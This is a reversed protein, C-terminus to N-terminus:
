KRQRIASIIATSQISAPTATPNIKLVSEVYNSVTDARPKAACIHKGIHFKYAKDGKFANYKRANCPYKFSAAGCIKCSDDKAFHFCNPNKYQLFFNCEVNPCNIQGKCDRYRVTEYGTWSTRLDKKWSRGDRVKELLRIRNTNTLKFCCLGDIDHPLKNPKQFVVGEWASQTIKRCKKLEREEDSLYGCFENNSEDFDDSSCASDISPFNSILKIGYDKSALHNPKRLTKTPRSKIPSACILIHQKLKKQYGDVYESCFPCSYGKPVLVFLLFEIWLWLIKSLKFIKLNIVFVKWGLLRTPRETLFEEWDRILYVKTEVFYDFKKISHMIRTLNKCDAGAWIRKEM